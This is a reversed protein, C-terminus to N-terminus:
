YMTLICWNWCMVLKAFSRVMMAAGSGPHRPFLLDKRFGPTVIETLFTSWDEPTVVGGGPIGTGFYLTHHIAPQQMASCQLGPLLTCGALVFVLAHIVAMRCPLM